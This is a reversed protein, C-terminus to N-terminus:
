RQATVTTGPTSAIPSVWWRTAPSDVTVPQGNFASCSIQLQASGAGAPVVLMGEISFTGENDNPEAWPTNFVDVPSTASGLYVACLGETAGTQDFLGARVSVFYTGASAVTPGTAGTSTTFAYGPGPPGQPGTAGPAGAPGPSGTAGTAGPAGTAGAPGQPGTQNWNLSTTRRPCKTVNPTDIVRLVGSDNSYCGHIVGSHDPITAASVAAGALAVVAAAAIATGLRRPRLRTLRHRQRSVENVTNSM